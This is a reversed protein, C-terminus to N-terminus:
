NLLDPSPGSVRCELLSGISSTWLGYKSNCPCLPCLAFWSNVRIRRLAQQPAVSAAQHSTPSIWAQIETEGSVLKESDLNWKKPILNSLICLFHLVTGSVSVNTCLHYSAIRSKFIVVVPLYTTRKGNVGSYLKSSLLVQPWLTGAIVYQTGTWPMQFELEETRVARVVGQGMAQQEIAWTIEVQELPALHAM